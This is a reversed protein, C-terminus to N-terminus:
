PWPLSCCSGCGAACYKGGEKSWLPCADGSEQSKDPNEGLAKASLACANFRRSLLLLGDLFGSRSIARRGFESCSIRGTHMRHACCFGKHPSIYRQYVDIFFLSATQLVSAKM